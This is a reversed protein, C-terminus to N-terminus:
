YASGCSYAHMLAHACSAYQIRACICVDLYVYKEMLALAWRRDPASVYQAACICVCSSACLWCVIMRAYARARPRRTSADASTHAVARSRTCHLAHLAACERPRRARRMVKRMVLICRRPPGEWGRSGYEWVGMIFGHARVQARVCRGRLM